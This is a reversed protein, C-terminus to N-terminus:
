ATFRRAHGKPALSMRNMAPNVTLGHMIELAAMHQGVGTLGDFNRTTWKFGCQSNQPGTCAMMAGNASTAILPVIASQTSPVLVATAALWRALYAKFSQQDVNCNGARECQKEIMVNNEFFVSSARILGNTRDIWKPDNTHAQLVASGYLFVGVNYSWQDHNVDPCGTTKADDTGDFVNYDNDILNVSRMWDFSMSAWDLYRGEKTFKALRAALQFAVGNSISSKYHYGDAGPQIKWKMGGNCRTTDWRSAFQNFVNKALDIWPPSGAPQPFGYEAAAMAALAFWGQDDNGDTHPGMFDRGPGAQSLLGRAIADNYTADGTYHWYEIMSGMLGGAEWWYYPPQLGGMPYSPNYYTMLNNAVTRAAAKVSGINQNDIELASTLSPVMATFALLAKFLRM